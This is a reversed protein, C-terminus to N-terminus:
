IVNKRLITRRKFLNSQGLKYSEFREKMKKQSGDSSKFAKTM